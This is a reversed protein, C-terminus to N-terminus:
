PKDINIRRRRAKEHLELDRRIIEPVGVDDHLARRAYNDYQKTPFSVGVETSTDTDDLRPRGPLRKKM